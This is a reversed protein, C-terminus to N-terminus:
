LSILVNEQYMAISEKLKRMAVIAMPIATLVAFLAGVNPCADGKEDDCSGLVVLLLFFYKM